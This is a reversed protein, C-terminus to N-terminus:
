HTAVPRRLYYAIQGRQISKIGESWPVIFALEWGDADFENIQEASLLNDGVEIKYEYHM